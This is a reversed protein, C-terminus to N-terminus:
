GLMKVAIRCAARVRSDLVTKNQAFYAFVDNQASIEGNKRRSKRKQTSQLNEACGSLNSNAGRTM